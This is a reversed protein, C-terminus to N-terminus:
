GEVKPELNGIDVRVSPGMSAALFLSKIYRGKVKAPKARNLEGLVAKLNEILNKDDFSVRGISAHIIQQSDTKLEVKGRKLEGVAKVPDETVTGTKPSPMLGRPGLVKAAKALKPM